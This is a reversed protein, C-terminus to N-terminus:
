RGTSRVAYGDLGGNETLWELVSPTLLSLRAGNISLVAELFQKVDAPVDFDFGKAVKELDEAITRTM